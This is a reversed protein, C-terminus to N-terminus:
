KLIINDILRIDGLWVAVCAVVSEADNFAQVPQLTKADVVEFYDVRFGSATLKYNALEKIDSPSRQRSRQKVEVLIKYILPAIRRQEATLQANRSSMALGDAARVTEVPILQAQHEMQHLMAAIITQQQFDKLGMYVREPRVISLLRYMVQVVGDFHGLRYKGEMVKTLNGLKFDPVTPMGKKYIEEESPLFVVDTNIAELLGLDTAPTRPYKELDAIRDFQRPNVFISCIAYDNNAKARNVLSLHGRHLAGMTPVFGISNDFQKAKQLHATLESVTKFVLM